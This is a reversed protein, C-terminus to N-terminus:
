SADGDAGWKKPELKTITKHERTKLFDEVRKNIMPPHDVWTKSGKVWTFKSELAM